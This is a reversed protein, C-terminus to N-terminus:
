LRLPYLITDDKRKLSFLPLFPRMIFTGYRLIIKRYKRNSDNHVREDSYNSMYFKKLNLISPIPTDRSAICKSRIDMKERTEFDLIIEGLSNVEDSLSYTEGDPKLVAAATHKIYYPSNINMHIKSGLSTHREKNLMIIKEDILTVSKSIEMPELSNENLKFIISDLYEKEEAYNKTQKSIISELYEKEVVYNKTKTDIINITNEMKMVEYGKQYDAIANGLPKDDPISVSDLVDKIITNLSNTSSGQENQSVLSSCTSPTSPYGFHKDDSPTYDVGPLNINLKPGTSGVEDIPKAANLSIHLSTCMNDYLAIREAERVHGESSKVIHEDDEDERKDEIVAVIDLTKMTERFSGRLSSNREIKNRDRGINFLDDDNDNDKTTIELTQRFHASM